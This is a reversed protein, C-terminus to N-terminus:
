PTFPVPVIQASCCDAELTLIAISKSSGKNQMAGPNIVLQSGIEEALPIHTHGFLVIRAHEAAARALLAALGSKVGYADGHTLFLRYGNIEVSLERKETSLRDCNGAVRMIPIDTLHGIMDADDVEDGLHIILDIEGALSLAQVTDRYNGHTDSCIFLRMLWRYCVGQKITLKNETGSDMMM